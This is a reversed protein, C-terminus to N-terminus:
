ITVGNAKVLNIVFEDKVKKCFYEGCIIPRDSNKYIKCSYKGEDTDYSLHVCSLPISVGLTKEEGYASIDCRHLAFWRGIEKEDKDVLIDKLSFFAVRCCNGCRLCVGQKQQSIEM